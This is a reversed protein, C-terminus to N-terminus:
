GFRESCDIERKSYGLCDKLFSPFEKKIGTKIAQAYISPLKAMDSFPFYIKLLLERLVSQCFSHSTYTQLVAQGLAPNNVNAFDLINGM